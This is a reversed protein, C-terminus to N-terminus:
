LRGALLGRWGLHTVTSVIVGLLQLNPSCPILSSLSCALSVLCFQLHGDVLVGTFTGGLM